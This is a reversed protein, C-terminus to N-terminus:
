SFARMQVAVEPEAELSYLAVNNKLRGTKIRYGYWHRLEWVQRAVHVLPWHKQLDLTSKPGERLADLLMRARWNDKFAIPKEDSM